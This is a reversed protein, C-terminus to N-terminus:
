RYRTSARLGPNVHKRGGLWLYAYWAFATLLSLALWLGAVMLLVLVERRLRRLGKM